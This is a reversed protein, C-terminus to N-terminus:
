EWQPGFLDEWSEGTPDFPDYDDEDGCGRIFIKALERLEDTEDETLDNEVAVIELCDEFDTDGDLLEALTVLMEDYTYKM